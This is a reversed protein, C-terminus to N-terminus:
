EAKEFEEKSMDVLEISPVLAAQARILNQDSEKYGHIFINVQPYDIVADAVAKFAPAIVEKPNRFVGGGVLTLHVNVRAKNSLSRIVALEAIAKYQATLLLQSIKGGFSDITPTASGQYSPAASFVQFMKTGSPENIVWQPLIHLNAINAKMHAYLQELQNESLEYLMLYGNQYYNEHSSPLVKTLANPLKESAVSATRHLAAAAAEISGLPGQTPDSPYNSVSVVHPGTSELYNYQSALQVFSEKALAYEHLYTIPFGKVLTFKVKPPRNTSPNKKVIEQYAENIEKVSFSLPEALNKFENIIDDESKNFTTFIWKGKRGGGDLMSARASKLGQEDNKYRSVGINALAEVEEPLTPKSIYSILTSAKEFREPEDDPIVDTKDEKKQTQKTKGQQNIECAVVLLGAFILFSYLLRVMNKGM